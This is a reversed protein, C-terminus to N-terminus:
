CINLPQNILTTITLNNIKGAAVSLPSEFYNDGNYQIICNERNIGELHVTKDVINVQENYIGEYIVLTSESPVAAVAESISAFDGTGDQKVTYKEQSATLPCCYLLSLITSAFITILMKDVFCFATESLIRMYNNEKM